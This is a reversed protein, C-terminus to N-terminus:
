PIEVLESRCYKSVVRRCYTCSKFEYQVEYSECFENATECCKDLCAKVIIGVENDCGSNPLIQVNTGPTLVAFTAM